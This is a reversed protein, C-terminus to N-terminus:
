ESVGRQTRDLKIGDGRFLYCVVERDGTAWSEETPTFSTLVLPSEHYPLGVFGEFAAACQQDAFLGLTENGPFPADAASPYDVLFFVENDHPQDCPIALLESVLGAVDPPDDFCNGVQLNFASVEGSEVFGTKGEQRTCASLLLALLLILHIPYRMPPTLTRAPLPLLTALEGRQQWSRDNARMTGKFFSPTPM